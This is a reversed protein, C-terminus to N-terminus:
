WRWLEVALGVGETGPNIRGIHANSVHAFNLGVTRGGIERSLEIWSAFEVASGLQPDANDHRYWGPGSALTLKFSHPLNWAYFIGGGAYDSGHGSLAGQVFPHFGHWSEAFRAQIGGYEHHEHHRLDNIGAIAALVNPEPVSEARAVSASAGAVCMAVIVATPFRRSKGM